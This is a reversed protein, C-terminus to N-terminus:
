RKRRQKRQREQDTWFQKPILDMREKHNTRIFAHLVQNNRLDKYHVFNLKDNENEGLPFVEDKWKIQFHLNKEKEKDIRKEKRSTMNIAKFIQEVVRLDTDKLAIDLPDYREPDFSFPRLDHINYGGETKGNTLDLLQYNTDNNSVVKLPGRWRTHNKSPAGSSGGVSDHYKVLVYSEPAFHTKEGGKVCSKIAISSEKRM